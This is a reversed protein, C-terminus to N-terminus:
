IKEILNQIDKASTRDPIRGEAIQAGPAAAIKEAAKETMVSASIYLQYKRM